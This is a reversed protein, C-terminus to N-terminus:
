GLEMIGNCSAILAVISKYKISNDFESKLHSLFPLRPSTMAAAVAVAHRFPSAPGFRMRVAPSSCGGNAKSGCGIRLRDATSGCGVRLPAVRDISDAALRSLM